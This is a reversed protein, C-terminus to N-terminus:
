IHNIIEIEAVQRAKEQQIYTKGIGLQGVVEQNLFIKGGEAVSGMALEEHGPTRLKHSLVIDLEASLERAVERAVVVGGRPIGLVVANQGRYESLQIALLRGAEKRDPVLLSRHSLIRLHTMM